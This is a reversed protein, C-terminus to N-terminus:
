NKEILPRLYALIEDKPRLGILRNVLRGGKYVLLTPISEIEFRMATQQNQDTDLKGFAVQGKLITALEDIIPSMARCPICWPAWCDIIVVDYRNIIELFNADTTKIPATPWEAEKMLEKLKKERIAELEDM